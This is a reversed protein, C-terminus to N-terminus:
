SLLRGGAIHRDLARELKDLTIGVGTTTAQVLNPGHYLCSGSNGGLGFSLMMWPASLKQQGADAKGNEYILDFLIHQNSHSAVRVGTPALDGMSKQLLSFMKSAVRVEPNSEDIPKTNSPEINSMAAM